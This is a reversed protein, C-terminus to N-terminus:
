RSIDQKSYNDKTEITLLTNLNESTSTSMNWYWTDFWCYFNAWSAQINETLQTIFTALLWSLTIKLRSLSEVDVLTQKDMQRDTQWCFGWVAYFWENWRVVVNVVLWVMVCLMECVMVCLMVVCVDCCLMLFCCWFVADCCLLVDCCLMVICCWFM